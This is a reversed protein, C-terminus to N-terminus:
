RLQLQLMGQGLGAAGPAIEQGLISETNYKKPLVEKGNVEKTVEIRYFGVRIGQPFDPDPRDEPEHIVSAVGYQDTVGSAPTFASGLFPEPIFTLTAGELLQGRFSVEYPIVMLAQDAEIWHALRREIESGEIQGNGDQDLTALSNKLPPCSALEDDGLSGDGDTDYQEIAAQSAATPDLKPMPIRGPLRSCSVITGCFLVGLILVLPKGIWATILDFQQKM